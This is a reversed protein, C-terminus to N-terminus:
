THPWEPEIRNELNVIVVKRKSVIVDERYNSVVGRRSITADPETFAERKTFPLANVAKRVELINRM